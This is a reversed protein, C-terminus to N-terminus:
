IKNLTKGLNGPIDKNLGIHNVVVRIGPIGLLERELAYKMKTNPVDGYIHLIYNEVFVAINQAGELKGQERLADIRSYATPLISDEAVLFNKVDVVNPVHRLANELETRQVALEVKGHIALVVGKGPVEDELEVKVPHISYPTSSVTVIREATARAIDLVKDSTLSPIYRYPGTTTEVGHGSPDEVAWGIIGVLIFPLAILSLWPADPIFLLGIITVLIALSLIIPWLSPGPMHIHHEEAEHDQYTELPTTLDNVTLNTQQLSTDM